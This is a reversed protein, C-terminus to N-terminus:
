LGQERHVKSIHALLAAICPKQQPSANLVYGLSQSPVASLSKPFSCIPGSLYTALHSQPLGPSCIGAAALRLFGTSWLYFSM